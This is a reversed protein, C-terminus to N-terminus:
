LTPLVFEVHVPHPHMVRLLRRDVVADAAEVVDDPDRLRVCLDEPGFTM